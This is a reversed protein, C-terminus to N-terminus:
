ERFSQLGPRRRLALGSEGAAVPAAAAARGMDGSRAALGDVDRGRDGAALLRALPTTTCLGCHPACRGGYLGNSVWSAHCIASDPTSSSSSSSPVTPAKFPM